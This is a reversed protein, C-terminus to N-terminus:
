DHAPEEPVPLWDSLARLSRADASDEAVGVEEPATEGNLAALVMCLPHATWRLDPSGDLCARRWHDTVIRTADVTRQLRKVESLLEAFAQTLGCDCDPDGPEVSIACTATHIGFDDDPRLAEIEAIREM